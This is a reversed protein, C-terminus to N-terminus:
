TASSGGRFVYSTEGNKRLTLPNGSPTSQIYQDSFAKFWDTRTSNVITYINTYVAPFLNKYLTLSDTNEETSAGLRLRNRLSSVTQGFPSPLDAVVEDIITISDKILEIRKMPESEVPSAQTFRLIYEGNTFRFNNIQKTLYYGGDFGTRHLVIIIDSNETNDVFEFELTFLREEYPHGATYHNGSLIEYENVVLKEDIYRPYMKSLLVKKVRTRYGGAIIPFLKRQNM